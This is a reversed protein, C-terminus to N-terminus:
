CTIRLIYPVAASYNPEPNLNIFGEVDVPFDYPGPYTGSVPYSGVTPWPGGM